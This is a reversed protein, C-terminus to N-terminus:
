LIYHALLTQQPTINISSDYLSTFNIIIIIFNTNQTTAGHPSM